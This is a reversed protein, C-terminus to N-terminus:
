CGHVRRAARYAWGRQLAAGPSISSPTRYRGTAGASTMCSWSMCRTSIDRRGFMVAGVARVVGASDLGGLVLQVLDDAMEEGGANESGAAGGQEGVLEGGGVGVGGVLAVGLGGGEFGPDLPDLGRLVGLDEFEFVQGGVRGVGGGGGHAGADAGAEGVEVVFAFVEFGLEGGQGLGGWGGGVGGQEIFERDEPVDQGAQWGSEFGAQEGREVQFVQPVLGAALGGHEDFDGLVGELGDRADDVGALVAVVVGAGVGVVGGLGGGHPIQGVGMSRTSRWM